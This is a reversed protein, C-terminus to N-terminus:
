KEVVTQSIFHIKKSHHYLFEDWHEELEQTIKM